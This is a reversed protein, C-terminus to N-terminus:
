KEVINIAKFLYKVRKYLLVTLISISVTKIANFLLIYQWMSNFMMNSFATPVFPASGMFFPFNIFKNTILSAGSQLICAIALTLIVTKIGKKYQYVITPVAVFVITLIINAFEGVGGTSGVLIHISEKVLTVMIAPIPGYIFGALLVFINSFDLELFFAPTSAMIPLEILYTIFSLASFIAMGAINKTTFISQLKEFVGQILKIIKNM